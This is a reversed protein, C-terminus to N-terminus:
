QGTVRFDSTTTGPDDAAPRAQATQRKAEAAAIEDPSAPYLYLWAPHPYFKSAYDYGRNESLRKVSVAPHENLRQVSAPQQAMAPASLAIGTAIVASQFMSM